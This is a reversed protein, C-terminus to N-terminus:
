QVTFKAESQAGTLVDRVRLTWKGKADNLALPVRVVGKGGPLLENRTYCWVSHGQPDLLEVHAVHDGVTGVAVLSLRAVLEEGAKVVAPVNMGLGEVRYPLLAYMATDGPALTTQVRDVEGIYKHARMDFVHTKRGFRIVVPDSDECRRFDRILGHVTVPGRTFTNLEYARPVQLAPAQVGCATGAAEVTVERKVGARAVIQRLLERMTPDYQPLKFNLLISLGKGHAMALV